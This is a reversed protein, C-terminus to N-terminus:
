LLSVAFVSPFSALRALATSVSLATLVGFVFFELSSSWVVFSELSRSFTDWCEFCSPLCEFTTLQGPRGREPVGRLLVTWIPRILGGFPAASRVDFNQREDNAGTAVARDM